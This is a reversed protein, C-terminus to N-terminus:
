LGCDEHHFAPHNNFAVPLGRRLAVNVAYTRAREVAISHKPWPLQNVNTELWVGYNWTSVLTGFGGNPLQRAGYYMGHKMISEEM